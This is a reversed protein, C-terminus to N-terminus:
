LDSPGVATTTPMIVAGLKMLALMSDWLEVQNGLMVIVPDGLGVGQQSLWAAVRDSRNAMEDFTIETSSGDEEVVVLANAGNGRAFADFWDVAWNFRDGLDPWTFEAVARDRDERLALLSDRAERYRATATSAAAPEAPDAPSEKTMAVGQVKSTGSAVREVPRTWLAPVRRRRYHGPARLWGGPMRSCRDPRHCRGGPM